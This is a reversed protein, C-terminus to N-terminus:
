QGLDTLLRSGKLVRPLLQRGPEVEGTRQYIRGTPRRHGEGPLREVASRQDVGREARDLVLLQLHEGADGLGAAVEIGLQHDGQAAAAAGRGQRGQGTRGQHHVKGGLQLQQLAGGEGDGM